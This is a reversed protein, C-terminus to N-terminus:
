EAVSATAPQSERMVGLEDASLVLEIDLLLKVTDRVKAMGRIFDTRVNTGFQPPPEIDEAAIDLVESVTDVVIGILLDLVAVVIICTAPTYALEPMGFKVRLDLVPIVKGRLNIVGKMFDPTQPVATIAQMGIIERVVQVDLGYEEEALVFTLYKEHEAM